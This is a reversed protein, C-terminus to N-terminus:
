VLLWETVTTIEGDDNKLVVYFAEETQATFAHLHEGFHAETRYEIRLREVTRDPPLLEECLMVYVTNNVHGNSDVDAQRLDFSRAPTLEEPTSIKRGHTGMEYQVEADRNYADMVEQPARMIRKEKLDMYVWTSDSVALVEDKEDLLFFNRFGFCGKLRYASTGIRVPQGSVPMKHFLIEHYVIVWGAKHAELYEFGVGLDDSQFNSCNQFHKSLEGITLVGKANTQSYGIRTQYSYM